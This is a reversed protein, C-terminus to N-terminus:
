RATHVPAFSNILADTRIDYALLNSRPTLNTEPAAGAPRANKFQGGVYVTDGVM